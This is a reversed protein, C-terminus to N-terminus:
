PGHHEDEITRCAGSDTVHDFGSCFISGSSCGYMCSRASFSISKNCSLFAGSNGAAVAIDFRNGAQFDAFNAPPAPAVDSPSQTRSITAKGCCPKAATSIPVRIRSASAPPRMVDAPQVRGTIARHFIRSVMLELNRQVMVFADINVAISVVGAHCGDSYPQFPPSFRRLQLALVMLWAKASAVSLSCCTIFQRVPHHRLM